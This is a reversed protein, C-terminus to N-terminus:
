KVSGFRDFPFFIFLTKGLINGEPLASPFVSSLYQVPQADYVDVPVSQSEASHRMDLSNFRNDGMLFYEGKGLYGNKPFENM